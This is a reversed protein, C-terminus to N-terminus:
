LFLLSFCMKGRGDGSGVGAGAGECAGWVTGRDAGTSVGATGGTRAGGDDIGGTAAAPADVIDGICNTPVGPVLIGFVSM